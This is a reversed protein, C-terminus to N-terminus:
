GALMFSESSPGMRRVQEDLSGTEELGNALERLAGELEFLAPSLGADGLARALGFRYALASVYDIERGKVEGGSRCTEVSSSTFSRCALPRFSYVGCAHSKLLACTRPEEKAGEYLLDRSRFSRAKAVRLDSEPAWAYVALAEALTVLVLGISKTGLQHCCTDCGSACDIKFVPLSKKKADEFALRLHEARAQLALAGARAIRKWLVPEHESDALAVRALEFSAVELEALYAKAEANPPTWVHWLKKAPAAPPAPPLAAMMGLVPGVGAHRLITSLRMM